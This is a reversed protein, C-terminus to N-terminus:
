DSKTRRPPRRSDRRSSEKGEELDVVRDELENLRRTLYRSSSQQVGEIRALMGASEIHYQEFRALTQLISAREGNRVPKDSVPVRRGRLFRLIGVTGGSGLAATILPTWDM